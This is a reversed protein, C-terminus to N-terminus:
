PMRKLERQGFGWPPLNKGYNLLKVKFQKNLLNFYSGLAKIPLGLQSEDGNDPQIIWHPINKKILLVRAVIKM